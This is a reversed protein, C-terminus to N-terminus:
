FFYNILNNMKVGFLKKQLMNKKMHWYVYNHYVIIVYIQYCNLNNLHKIIFIM